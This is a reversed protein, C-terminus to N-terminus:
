KSASRVPRSGMRCEQVTSTLSTPLPSQRRHPNLSASYALNAGLRPNTALASVVNNSGFQNLQQNFFLFSTQDQLFNVANIVTRDFVIGASGNLVTSGSKFPTYAFGLRPAFDKYSPAYMDPGHNAKGGLVESYIPLGTNSTNGSSSQALRASIYKDLSIPSQVSENGNVEYPVSYLQYRVGYSITLKSTAKWTDGFYAETEFFRYAKPGGAGAPQAVGKNNYTFNTAIEGIVGLGSTFLQDYDDIAVHSSNASGGDAINSPRVSPDLGGSLAAGTLGAGVFNFNSIHNGNTKVFKFTGGFTFSHSGHQWNFDDRVEPVPTRRKQGNFNTYPGSFGTFSYQNAGTPNYTDPFDYKSVTDGYYFQNVKNAGITWM